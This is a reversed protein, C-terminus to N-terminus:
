GCLEVWAFPRIMFALLYDAGGGSASTTLAGAGWETARTNLSKSRDIGYGQHAADSM